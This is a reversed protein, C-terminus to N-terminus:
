STAIRALLEPVGLGLGASVRRLTEIRPQRQGTEIRSLSEQPIGSRSAVQEQTLGISKRVSRLRSGIAEGEAQDSADITSRHVQDVVARLAGADVDLERGDKDVLLVAQGHGQASATFPTFDVQEAFPLSRWAVARELGDGFEVWLIGDVPTFRASRVRDPELREVFSGFYEALRSDILRSETEEVALDLVFFKDDNLRFATDPEHMRRRDAETRVLLVFSVNSPGAALRDLGKTAAMEHLDGIVVTRQVPFLHEVRSFSDWFGACRRLALDDLAREVSRRMAASKIPTADYDVARELDTM